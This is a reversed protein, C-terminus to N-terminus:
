CWQITKAEKKSLTFMSKLNEWSTILPCGTFDLFRLKIREKKREDEQKLLNLCNNARLELLNECQSFSPLLSLSACNSISLKQLKKLHKTKVKRLDKNESLILCTLQNISLPYSFTKEIGCNNLVLTDISTFHTLILEIEKGINTNSAKFTKLFTEEQENKFGKLFGISSLNINFSVDFYTISKFNYTLFLLCKKKKVM